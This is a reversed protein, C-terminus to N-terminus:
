EMEMAQEWVCKGWWFKRMVKIMTRMKRVMDLIAGEEQVGELIVVVGKVEQKEVEQRDMQKSTAHEKSTDLREVGTALVTRRPVSGAGIIQTAVGSVIKVRPKTAIVEVEELEEEAGGASHVVM